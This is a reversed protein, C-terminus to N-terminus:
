RTLEEVLVRTGFEGGGRVQLVHSECSAATDDHILGARRMADLVCKGGTRANDPDYARQGKGILRTLTVRRKTGLEANPIRNVRKYATLAQQWQDRRRRYAHRSAGVNVEHNNGSQLELPVVFTWSAAIPATPDHGCKVCSM